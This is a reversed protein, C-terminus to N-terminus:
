ALGLLLFCGDSVLLGHQAGPMFDVVLQAGEVGALQAAVAEGFRHALVPDGQLGRLPLIDLPHHVEDVHEGHM